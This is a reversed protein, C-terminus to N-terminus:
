PKWEKHSDCDKCFYVPYGNVNIAICVNRPLESIHIYIKNPTMNSTGDWFIGSYPWDTGWMIDVSYAFQFYTQPLTFRSETGFGTDATYNVMRWPGLIWSGDENVGIIERAYFKSEKIVFGGSFDLDVDITGNKLQEYKAVAEDYPSREASAATALTLSMIVAALLLAIMRRCKM